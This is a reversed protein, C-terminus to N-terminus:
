LLSKYKGDFIRGMSMNIHKTKSELRNLVAYSHLIETFANMARQEFCYFILILKIHPIDMVQFVVPIQKCDYVVIILLFM